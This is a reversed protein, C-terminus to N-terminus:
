WISFSHKQAISTMSFFIKSLSSLYSATVTSMHDPSMPLRYFSNPSSFDEATLECPQVDPASWVNPSFEVLSTSLSFSRTQCHQSPAVFGSPLHLICHLFNNLCKQSCQGLVTRTHESLWFECPQTYALLLLLLSRSHQYNQLCRPRREVAQHYCQLTDEVDLPVCVLCM